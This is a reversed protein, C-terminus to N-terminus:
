KRGIGGDGAPFSPLSPLGGSGGLAGVLTGLMSPDFPTIIAQFAGLVLAPRISQGDSSSGGPLSPFGGGIGGTGGSGGIIGPAPAPPETSANPKETTFSPPKIDPLPGAREMGDHERPEGDPESHSKVDESHKIESASCISSAFLVIVICKIQLVFM